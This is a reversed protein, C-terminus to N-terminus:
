FSANFDILNENEDFYFRAGYYAKKDEEPIFLVNGKIKSAKISCKKEDTLLEIGIKKFMSLISKKDTM